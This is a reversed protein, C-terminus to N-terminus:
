QEKNLTQLSTALFGLEMALIESVAGELHECTENCCAKTPSDSSSTIPKLHWSREGEYHDM